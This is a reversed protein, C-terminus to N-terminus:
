VVQFYAGFISILTKLVTVMAVMWCFIVLFSGFAEHKSLKIFSYLHFSKSWMQLQDPLVLFLDALNEHRPVPVLIIKRAKKVEWVKFHVTEWFIGAFGQPNIRPVWTSDSLQFTENAWSLADWHSSSLNLVCKKCSKLFYTMKPNFDFDCLFLQYSFWEKNKLVIELIWPSMLGVKVRRGEQLCLNCGKLCVTNKANKALFLRWRVRKYLPTKSFISGIFYQSSQSRSLVQHTLSVASVLKTSNWIVEFNGVKFVEPPPQYQNGNIQM